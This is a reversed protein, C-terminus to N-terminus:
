CIVSKVGIVLMLIAFIITLVKKNIKALFKAGFYGGIVSGMSIMLLCYFDIDNKYVYVFSSCISLPLIICLSTAHAEKESIKCLKELLPVCIMGGGGGWFGNVFGTIVGVLACYIRQKVKKKM